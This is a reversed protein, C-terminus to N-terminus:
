PHMFMFYVRNNPHPIFASFWPQTPNGGPLIDTQRGLVKSRLMRETDLQIGWLILRESKPTGSVSQKVGGDCDANRQALVKPGYYSIHFIQPAKVTKEEWRQRKNIIWNLFDLCLKQGACQSEWCWLLSFPLDILNWCVRKEEDTVNVMFWTLCPVDHFFRNRTIFSSLKTERIGKGNGHSTLVSPSDPFLCCFFLVTLLTSSCM